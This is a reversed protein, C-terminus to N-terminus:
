FAFIPLEKTWNELYYRRNKPNRCFGSDVSITRFYKHRCFGLRSNSSRNVKLQPSLVSGSPLSTINAAWSVATFVVVSPLSLYKITERFEVEVDLAGSVSVLNSSSATGTVWVFDLASTLVQLSTVADGKWHHSRIIASTSICHLIFADHYCSRRLRWFRVKPDAEPSGPSWAVM